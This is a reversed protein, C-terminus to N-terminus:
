RQLELRPNIIKEAAMLTLPKPPWFDGVVVASSTCGRHKYRTLVLWGSAEDGNVPIIQMSEDSGDVEQQKLELLLDMTACRWNDPTFNGKADFACSRLSGFNSPQPDALCRLCHYKSM